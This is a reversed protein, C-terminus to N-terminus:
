DLAQSLLIDHMWDTAFGQQRLATALQAWHRIGHLLLHAVVKRQSVAFSGASITDFKIQRAMDDDTATALWAKLDARAEDFVRFMVAPDTPVAEYKTVPQGRLRDIYRREVVIVHHILGRVTATRETGVPLALVEPPQKALWDRWRHTETETYDVLEQFSIGHM